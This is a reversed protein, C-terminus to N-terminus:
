QTLTIYRRLSVKLPKFEVGRGEFFKTAFEVYVLRLSHIFPGLAGIAMNFLHLLSGLVVVVVGGLVVGAIGLIGAFFAYLGRLMSNFVMALLLTALGIGAIRVYSLTDGLIGTVDFIWLMSGAGGMSKLKGIIVLGVGAIVLPRLVYEVVYGPVPAKVIGFSLLVYPAGFFILLLVGLENLVRGLDREVAGRALSIAHALAIHSIGILLSIGIFLPASQLSGINLIAPYPLWPQPGLFTKSLVGVVITALAAAYLIKQLAKFGESEPNEALKPLIYRTALALGAGYVADGLMLSYFAIFSYTFVPTPDWEGPAPMGYLKTILEFPKFPRPNRLMAPPTGGDEVTEIYVARLERVLGEVFRRLLTTPVWGEIVAAYRTAVVHELARIRERENDVVLRLLALDELHRRILEVVESRRAAAEMLRREESRLRAAVESLRGPGLVIPDVGFRKEIGAVLHQLPALCVATVLVGESGLPGLRRVACAKGLEDVFADVNERPVAYLKTFTYRGRYSLQSADVDGLVAILTSVVAILRRVRRLREEADRVVKEIAVVSSYLRRVRELSRLFEERMKDPSPLDRLVVVEDRGLRRLLERLLRQAEDLQQAYARIAEEEREGAARPVDIHLAGLRRMVDIAKDILDRATVIRIRTSFDPDTLLIHRLKM